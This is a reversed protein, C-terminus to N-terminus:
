FLSDTLRTNLYELGKSKNPTPPLPPRMQGNAESPFTSFGRM